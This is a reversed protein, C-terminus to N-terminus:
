HQIFLGIIYLIMLVISIWIIKVTKKLSNRNKSDRKLRNSIKYLDFAHITLACSVFGYSLYILKYSYTLHYLIFLLVTAILSIVAKQRSTQIYRVTTM